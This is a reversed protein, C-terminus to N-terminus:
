LGSAVVELHSEVTGFLLENTKARRFYTHLPHEWTFGIGGHIQISEEAAFVSATTALVRATSVATVFAATDRDTAADAADLVAAEALEIAISMDSLRHKISQFSGIPRGFQQRTKAYDVSMDLCARAAGVQESAVAALALAQARELGSRLDSGGVRSAEVDAFEVRTLARTFDLAEMPTRTVGPATGDVVALEPGAQGNAVVVLLDAEAGDVVFDQRGNLTLQRGNAHADINSVSFPYGTVLAATTSGAAIAPVYEACADDTACELLTSGALVISSLYPAVTMARGLEATVVSLDKAGYGAGGMSEPFPIETMGLNVLSAWADGPRALVGRLSDRIENQEVTMDLTM